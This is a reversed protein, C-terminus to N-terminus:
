LVSLLDIRMDPQLYFPSVETKKEFAHDKPGWYLWFKTSSDRIDAREITVEGVIPFGDIGDKETGWMEGCVTMPVDDGEKTKVTLGECEKAYIRLRFQGSVCFDEASILHILPVALALSNMLTTTLRM